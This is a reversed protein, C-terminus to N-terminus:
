ANMGYRAEFAAIADLDRSLTSNFSRVLDNLPERSQLKVFSPPTYILEGTEVCRVWLRKNQKVVEFTNM